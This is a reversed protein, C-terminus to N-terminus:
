PAAIKHVSGICCQIRNKVRPWSSYFLVRRRRYFLYVIIKMGCCSFFLCLIFGPQSTPQCNPSRQCYFSRQVPHITHMNVMGGEKEWVALDFSGVLNCPSCPSLSVFVLGFTSMGDHCAEVMHLLGSAGSGDKIFSLIYFVGKESCTIASPGTHQLPIHYSTRFDPHRFVFIWVMTFLFLPFILGSLM